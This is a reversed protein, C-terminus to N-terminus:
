RSRTVHFEDDSVESFLWVFMPFDGLIPLEQSICAHTHASLSNGELM